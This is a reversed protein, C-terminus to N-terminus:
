KNLSTKLNYTPMAQKRSANIESLYPKQKLLALIDKMKFIKDREMLKFIEKAFEFDEPWDVTWRMYFLNKPNKLNFIKFHKPQERIVLNFGERYHISNKKIKKNLYKLTEMPYIEIDLGHPFTWPYCNTLYDFKNPNRRFIRVLKDVLGPDVLPCDATIRVLADAEYKKATEFLRSILDEESGRYCKLGISKAHKALVDNEKLVSTSLIIEDIEKADLLRNKIHWILTKGLIRKLAKRKLRHSGMRAQIVAIVKLKKPM